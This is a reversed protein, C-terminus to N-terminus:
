SVAGSWGSAKPIPATVAIQLCGMFFRTAPGCSVESRPCVGALFGTSLSRANSIRIRRAFLDDATPGPAAMKSPNGCAGPSVRRVGSLEVIHWNTETPKFHRFCEDFVLGSGCFDICAENRLWEFGSVAV